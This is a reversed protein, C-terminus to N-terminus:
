ASPRQAQTGGTVIARAESEPWWKRRGGPDRRGAPIKGNRELTRLWTPTVGLLSALEPAWVRRELNSGEM